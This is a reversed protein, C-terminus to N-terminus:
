FVIRTDPAEPGVKMGVSSEHVALEVEHASPKSFRKIPVVLAVCTGDVV